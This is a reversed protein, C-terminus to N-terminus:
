LFVVKASMEVKARFIVLADPRFTLLLQKGKPQDKSFRRTQDNQLWSLIAAKMWRSMIIFDQTIIYYWVCGVQALRVFLGRLWGSLCVMSSSAVTNLSGAALGMILLGSTAKNLGQVCVNHLHSPFCNLLSHKCHWEWSVSRTIIYTTWSALLIATFM